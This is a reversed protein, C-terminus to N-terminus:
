QFGARPLSKSPPQGEQVPAGIRSRRVRRFPPPLTAPSRYTSRSASNRHWTGTLSERNGIGPVRGLDAQDVGFDGVPVADQPAPDREVAGLDHDVEARLDLQKGQVGLLVVQPCPHGSDLRHGARVLRQEGVEVPVVGGADRRQPPREARSRFRLDRECTEGVQRPDVQYGSCFALIPSSASVGSSRAYRWRRGATRLSARVGTSRRESTSAVTSRGAVISRSLISM